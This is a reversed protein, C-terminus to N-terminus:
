AKSLIYRWLNNCTYVLIIAMDYRASVHKSKLMQVFLILHVGRSQAPVLQVVKQRCYAGPSRLCDAIADLHLLHRALFISILALAVFDAQTVKM